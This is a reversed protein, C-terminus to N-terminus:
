RMWRRRMPFICSLFRASCAHTPSLSPSTASQRQACNSSRQDRRHNAQIIISDDTLEISVTTYGRDVAGAFTDLPLLEAFDDGGCIDNSATWCDDFGDVDPNLGKAYAVLSGTGQDATLREISASMLYVGRDKVLYLGPKQIIRDEYPVRCIPNAKSHEVIRKLVDDIAFKLIRPRDGNMDYM